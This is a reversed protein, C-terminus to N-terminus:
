HNADIMSRIQALLEEPDGGHVDVAKQPMV